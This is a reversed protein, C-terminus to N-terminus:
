LINWFQLLNNLTMVKCVRISLYQPLSPDIKYLTSLLLSNGKWLIFNFVEATIFTTKTDFKEQM